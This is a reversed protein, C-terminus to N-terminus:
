LLIRRSLVSEDKSESELEAFKACSLKFCERMNTIMKELGGSDQTEGM